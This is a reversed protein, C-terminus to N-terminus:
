MQAVNLNNVVTINSLVNIDHNKLVKNQNQIQWYAYLEENRIKYRNYVKVTVKAIKISIM